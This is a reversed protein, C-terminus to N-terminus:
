HRSSGCDGLKRRWHVASYGGPVAFAIVICTM